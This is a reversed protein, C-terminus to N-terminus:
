VLDIDTPGIFLESDLNVTQHSDLVKSRRRSPDRKEEYAVTNVLVSDLEESKYKPALKKEDFPAKPNLMMHAM